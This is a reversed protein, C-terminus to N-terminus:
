KLFKRRNDLAWEPVPHALLPSIMAATKIEQAGAPIVTIVPNIGNYVCVGLLPSQCNRSLVFRQQGGNARAM